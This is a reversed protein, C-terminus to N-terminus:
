SHEQPWVTGAVRDWLGDILADISLFRGPRTALLALLRRPIPGAVDVQRGEARVEFLGLVGVRVDRIYAQAPRLARIASTEPNCGIQLTSCPPPGITFVDLAGV